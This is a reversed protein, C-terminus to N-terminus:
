FYILFHVSYATLLRGSNVRGSTYFFWMKKCIFSNNKQAFNSGFNFFSWFVTLISLVADFFGHKRMTKWITKVKPDIKACWVKLPRNITHHRKKQCVQPGQPPMLLPSVLTKLNTKLKQPPPVARTFNKWKGYNRSYNRGKFLKRGQITEASVIRKYIVFRYERFTNVM